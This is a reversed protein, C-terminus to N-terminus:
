SVKSFVGHLIEVLQDIEKRHVILPPIFRLVNGTTCNILVGKELCAKVISDGQQTLEM